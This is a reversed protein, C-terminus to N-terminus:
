ASLLEHIQEEGPRSFDRYWYATNVFKEPQDLCILDDCLIAIEVSAERSAVPAGVIIKKPESRRLAAIATRMTAGTHIGCDVLIVSKGMIATPPRNGRCTQERSKLDALAGVLFHELPTAPVDPLHPVKEDIVISGAVSVASLESGPGDPSLLRRIIIFDLPQGLFNAVERAVPVGGLIPTLVIADPLNRYAEFKTTLLRGASSLNEFRKITGAPENGAPEPRNETCKFKNMNPILSNM